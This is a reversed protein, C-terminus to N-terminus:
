FSVNLSKVLNLLSYPEEKATKLFNQFAKIIKKFNRPNGIFKSPLLKHCIRRIGEQIQAPHVQYRCEIPVRYDIKSHKPKLFYNKNKMKRQFEKEYNISEYRTRIENFSYSYNDLFDQNLINFSDLSDNNDIDCIIDILNFVHKGSKKYILLKIKKNPNIKGISFAVTLDMSHLTNMNCSLDHACIFGVEEIQRFFQNITYLCLYYTLM